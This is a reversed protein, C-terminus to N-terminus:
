PSHSPLHSSPCSRFLSSSCGAARSTGVASTARRSRRLLAGSAPARRARVRPPPRRCRPRPRRDRPRRPRPRRDRPRRAAPARRQRTRARLLLLPPTGRGHSVYYNRSSTAFPPACPFVFAGSTPFAWEYQCTVPETASFSAPGLGGSSDCTFQVQIGRATGDPCADGNQVTLQVGNTIPDWQPPTVVPTWESIIACGFGGSQTALAAAVHRHTLTPTLEVHSVFPFLPPARASSPSVCVPLGCRLLRRWHQGHVHEANLGRPTRASSSLPRHAFTPLPTRGCSVRPHFRFVVCLRSRTAAATSAPSPAVTVSPVLTRRTAAGTRRRATTKHQLRDSFPSSCCAPSGALRLSKLFFPGQSTPAGFQVKRLESWRM